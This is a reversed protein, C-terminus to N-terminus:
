RAIMLIATFDASGVDAGDVTVDRSGPDFTYGVQSPTITYHGNAVDKFVYAGQDDTISMLDGDGTLLVTVFGSADSVKGSIRYGPGCGLTAAILLASIFARRKM